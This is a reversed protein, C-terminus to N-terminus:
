TKFYFRTFKQLMQGTSVPVCQQVNSQDDLVEHTPCESGRVASLPESLLVVCQLPIHTSVHGKKFLFIFSPILPKVPNTLFLSKNPVEQKILTDDTAKM